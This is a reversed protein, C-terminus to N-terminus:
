AEVAGDPTTKPVIALQMGLADLMKLITKFRPKSGERLAKYAGERTIDARAAVKGMGYARVVDNMASQFLEANGTAVIESMYAAVAAKSNLGHM